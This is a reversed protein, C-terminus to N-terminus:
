HATLPQNDRAEISGSSRRGRLDIVESIGIAEPCGLWTLTRCQAENVSRRMALASCILLAAYDDLDGLPRLCQRRITAASRVSRCHLAPGAQASEGLVELGRVPWEM